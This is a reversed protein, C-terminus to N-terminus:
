FVSGLVLSLISTFTGILEFGMCWTCDRFEVGLTIESCLWSYARLARTRAWFDFGLSFLGFSQGKRGKRGVTGHYLQVMM